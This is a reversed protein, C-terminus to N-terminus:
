ACILSIQVIGSFKDLINTNYVFVPTSTKHICIVMHLYTTGTCKGNARVVIRKLSGQVLTVHFGRGKGDSAAYFYCLVRRSIVEGIQLTMQIYVESFKGKAL